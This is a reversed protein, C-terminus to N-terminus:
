PRQRKWGLVVWAAAWRLRAVLDRRLRLRKTKPDAGRWSEWWQLETSTFAERGYTEILGEQLPYGAEALTYQLDLLDWLALRTGVLSHPFVWSRPIDALVFAEAGGRETRVLVNAAYLTQHCLGSEHMRRVSRVLPRLDVLGANGPDGGALDAGQDVEPGRERLWEDLPKSAPVEEMVLLEHFGDRRSWGHGWALPITVPVGWRALHALRRFEREVRFRFVLSRLETVAGRKRYLKAVTPLGDPSDERWVLTRDEKKLISAPPPDLSRVIGSPRPPTM